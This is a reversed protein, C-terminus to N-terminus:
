WPERASVRDKSGLVGVQCNAHLTKGSTQWVRQLLEQPVRSIEQVEGKGCDTRPTSRRLPLREAFNTTRSTYRWDTTTQFPPQRTGLRRWIRLHQFIRVAVWPNRWSSWWNQCIGPQCMNNMGVLLLTKWLRLAPYKLEETRRRWPGSWTPQGLWWCHALTASRNRPQPWIMLAMLTLKRVCLGRCIELLDGDFNPSRTAPSAPTTAMWEALVPMTSTSSIRNPDRYIM